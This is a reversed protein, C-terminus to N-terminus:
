RRQVQLRKLDKTIEDMEKEEASIHQKKKTKSAAMSPGAEVTPLIKQIGKLPSKLVPWDKDMQEVEKKSMPVVKSVSEKNPHETLIRKEKMSKDQIKMPVNRSMHWIQMEAEENREGLAAIELELKNKESKWKSEEKELCKIRAELKANQMKYFLPDDKIEAKGTLCDIIGKIDKVRDRM